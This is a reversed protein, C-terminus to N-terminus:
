LFPFQTGPSNNLPSLVADAGMNWLDELSVGELLNAYEIDTGHADNLTPNLAPDSISAFDAITSESMPISTALSHQRLRQPAVQLGARTQERQHVYASLSSRITSCAEIFKSDQGIRRYENEALEAGTALLELDSRVTRSQPQRFISLGLVICGHLLQTLTYLPTQIRSGMKAMLRITARASASCLSAGNRLRRHFPLLSAHAEIEELFQNHPLVLSARHLTILAQHYHLALFTAFPRDEDSCYFDGDPQIDEPLSSKWDRLAQDLTGINQLLQLSSDPNRKRRYLLDSIREFITTLSVWHIFYMLRAQSEISFIQSPSFTDYEVHSIATPRTTELEFLRELAYCTWWIRAHLESRHGRM